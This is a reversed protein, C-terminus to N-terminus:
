GLNTKFNELEEPTGLPIFYQSSIIVPKIIKNSDILNNYLPAIYIEGYKQKIDNSSENFAKIYDSAKDFYYLGVSGLSSIPIKEAMEIIKNEDDDIKAFSWHSGKADFLMVSGDNSVIESKLVNKPDIHTDINYILVGEDDDINTMVKMVTDAQGDTMEELVFIKYDKIGLSNIEKRLYASSYNNKRVIFYFTEDFFDSLSSISWNFLSKGGVQIEHKPCKYGVKKFRSGQGAMTIIVKM